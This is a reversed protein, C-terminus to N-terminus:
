LGRRPVRPRGGHARLGVRESSGLPLPVAKTQLSKGLPWRQNRSLLAMSMTNTQKDSQPAATVGVVSLDCATM